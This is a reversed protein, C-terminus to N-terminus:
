SGSFKIKAWSTLALVIPVGIFAATKRSTMFLYVGSMIEGLLLMSTGTGAFTAFLNKAPEVLLDEAIANNMTITLYIGTLFLPIKSKLRLLNKVQHKISTLVKKM